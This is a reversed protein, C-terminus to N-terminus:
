KVGIGNLCPPLFHVERCFLNEVKAFIREIKTIPPHNKNTQDIMTVADAETQIFVIWLAKERHIRFGIFGNAM